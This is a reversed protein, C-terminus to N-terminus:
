PGASWWARRSPVRRGGAEAAPEPREPWPRKLAVTWTGPGAVLSSGVWAGGFGPSASGLFAASAWGRAAVPGAVIQRPASTGGAWGSRGRGALFVLSAASSGRVGSAGPRVASLAPAPAGPRAGASGQAERGRRRGQSRGRGPNPKRSWQKAPLPRLQPSASRACPAPQPWLDGYPGEKGSSLAHAGPRGQTGPRAGPATIERDRGPAGLSGPSDLWASGRKCFLPFLRGCDTPAVVDMRLTALGLPPRPRVPDRCPTPTGPQSSVGLFPRPPQSLPVAM